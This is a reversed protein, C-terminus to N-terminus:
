GSFFGVKQEMRHYEVAEGTEDDQEFILATKWPVINAHMAGKRLASGFTHKMRIAPNDQAHQMAM